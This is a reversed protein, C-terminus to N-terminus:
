KLIAMWGVACAAGSICFLLFWLIEGLAGEMRIQEVITVGPIRLKSVAWAAVAAALAVTTIFVAVLIM